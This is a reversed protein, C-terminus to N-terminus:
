YIHYYEIAEVWSGNYKEYASTIGDAKKIDAYTNNKGNPTTNSKFNTMANNSFLLIKNLGSCDRFPSISPYNNETSMPLEVLNILVLSLEKNNQFASDYISKVNHGIVLTKLGSQSFSSGMITLGTGYELVVISLNKCNHFAQKGITTLATNSYFYTIATGNFADQGIYTLAIDKNKGKAIPNTGDRWVVEYLTDCTYFARDEIRELTSPLYVKTVDDHIFYKGVSVVDYNVGDFTFTSPITIERTTDFVSTVRARTSTLDINGSEDIPEFCLTVGTMNSSTIFDYACVYDSAGDATWSANTRFSELLEKKVYYKAKRTLGSGWIGETETYKPVNPTLINIAKLATNGWFPANGYTNLSYITIEEFKSNEFAYEGLSKLRSETSFIVNKLGTNAFAQTGISELSKPFSIYELGTMGDGSSAFALDGITLLGDNLKVGNSVMSSVLNTCGYFMRNSIDKLGSTTNTTYNAGTANFKFGTYISTLKKSGEFTSQGLAELSLADEFYVQEFLSETFAYQGISTVTQPIVLTNQPKFYMERHPNLLSSDWNCGKFAYDGISRLTTPLAGIRTSSYKSASGLVMKGCNAFAMKGIIETTGLEIQIGDCNMFAYDGIEKISNPLIVTKGGCVGTFANKQIRRVPVGDIENPIEINFETTKGHETIGTIVCEDDIIEYTFARAYYAYLTMDKYFTYMSDADIRTGKGQPETYWGAFIYGYYGYVPLLPNTTIYANMDADLPLNLRAMFTNDANITTTSEDKLNADSIDATLKFTPQIRITKVNTGAPISVKAQSGTKNEYKIEDITVTQNEPTLTAHNNKIYIVRNTSEASFKDSTFTKGNYNLSLIKLNDPNSITIEIDFMEPVGSMVELCVDSEEDGNHGNVSPIIKVKTLTPLIEKKGSDGSSGSDNCSIVTLALVGVLLLVVLAITLKKAM